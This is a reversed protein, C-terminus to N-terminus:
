PPPPAPAALEAPAADEIPDFHGFPDEFHARVIAVVKAAHVGDVVRHDFTAFLRMVKGVALKGEVVRPADHVDGMAVLLPVRSFPVLPAYAGELGLSGVNTVMVSGFADKPVGAWALDLNLDYGLFTLLRLVPGILFAPVHHLRSRSQELAAGKRSRISAAQAEFDDIIEVLPKRQPEEIKLGSLDIAGSKPDEIAVQFFVGATARQYLRGWRLMANVEPVTELVAGVVRAMLHSVTLHRGTANRFAEIYRLSAEMAITVSGYISPDYATRWTGLAIHRFPSLALPGVLEVNPMPDM